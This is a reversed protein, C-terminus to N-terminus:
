ERDDGSDDEDTFEDSFRSISEGLYRASWPLDAITLGFRPALYEVVFLDMAEHDLGGLDGPAYAALIPDRHQLIAETEGDYNNVIGITRFIRSVDIRRQSRGVSGPTLTYNGSAFRLVSLLYTSVPSNANEIYTRDWTQTVLTWIGSGLLREFILAYGSLEMTDIIPEIVLLSRERDDMSSLDEDLRLAALNAMRMFTPFLHGSLEPDNKSIADFTADFLFRYTRGFLDPKAVDHSTSPLDLAVESLRISVRKHQSRVWENIEPRSPWGYDGTPLNKLEAYSNLASNLVESFYEVTDLLDIVGFIRQALSSAIEQQAGMIPDILEREVTKTFNNITSVLSKSFERAILHDVWWQPTVRRGEVLTEYSIGASIQEM